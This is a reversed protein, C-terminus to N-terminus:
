LLETKSTILVVEGEECIVAGRCVLKEYFSGTLDTIFLEYGCEQASEYVMSILRKGIGKGRMFEPMFINPIQVQRHQHNILIRIVRTRALDDKKILGSIEIEGLSRHTKQEHFQALYPRLLPEFKSLIKEEIQLLM